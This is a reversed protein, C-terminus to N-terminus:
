GKPPLTTITGFQTLSEDGKCRKPTVPEIEGVEWANRCAVQKAQHLPKNSCRLRRSVYHLTGTSVRVDRLRPSRAQLDRSPDSRRASRAKSRARVSDVILRRGYQQWYLAPCPLSLGATLCALRTAEQKCVRAITTLLRSRRQLTELSTQPANSTALSM